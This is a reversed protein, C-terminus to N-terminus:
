PTPRRASRSMASRRWRRAAQGLRWRITAPAPPSPAATNAAAAARRRRAPPPRSRITADTYAVLTDAAVRRADNTVVVADGRAVAMHKQPWYELDDRATLSMTRAHDAESRARDDGDGGSRHRLDRSRGAGPRDPHLHACQGRGAAPLDRQRRHRRRRRRGRRSAAPQGAARSAGGAHRAARDAGAKKRYYAILRDATVTVNGRVARPM